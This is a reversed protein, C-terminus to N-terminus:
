NPRVIKVKTGAPIQYGGTFIGKGKGVVTAGSETIEPFALKQNKTLPATASSKFENIVINGNSDLGIADVRTRVGSPTKITIQEVANSNSSSFKAFEQQEFARGTARNQALVDGKSVGKKGIDTFGETLAELAEDSAKAGAKTAKAAGKAVDAAKNAANFAKIGEGVGMVGPILDITDGVLGVWAIPDTPNKCVDVISGALSIVDFVTDIFAGSGDKATVPNNEAYAFLNKCGVDTTAIMLASISDANIFRRIQPDYFRAPLNYYGTENDYYYGRYRYPNKTLINDTDIGEEAEKTLVPKGWLDYEYTGILKSDSNRYVAIIDGQVNRTFFYSREEEEGKKFSISTVKGTSDYYYRLTEDGTTESLLMGNNYHYETIKGNVNRTKRKGDSMYTYSITDNGKKIDTLNGKVDWTFKTGMYNIPAGMDNYTIAKGDYSILKDKWVSDYTYTYVIGDVTETKINGGNDYTYSYIKTSGDSYTEEAKEIEFYDNYTYDRTHGSIDVIQTINGLKDYNYSFESVADGSSGFQNTYKDIRNTTYNQLIRKM